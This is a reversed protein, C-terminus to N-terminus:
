PMTFHVLLCSKNFTIRSTWSGEALWCSRFRWVILLLRLQFLTTDARIYRSLNNFDLGLTTCPLSQVFVRALSLERRLHDLASLLLYNRSRFFITLWRLRYNSVYHLRCVIGLWHYSTRLLLRDGLSRLSAFTQFLNIIVRRNLIRINSFLWDWVILWFLIIVIISLLSNRILLKLSTIAPYWDEFSFM